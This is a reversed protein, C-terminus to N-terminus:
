HEATYTTLAVARATETQGESLFVLAFGPKPVTIICVNNVQDCTVDEDGNFTQGAWTFNGM